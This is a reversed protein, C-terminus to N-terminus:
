PHDHRSGIWTMEVVAGAAGIGVGRVGTSENPAEVLSMGPLPWPRWGEAAELDGRSVADAFARCAEEGSSRRRMLHLLEGAALALAIARLLVGPSVAMWLRIWENLFEAAGHMAPGM